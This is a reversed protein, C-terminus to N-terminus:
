DKFKMKEKLFELYGLIGHEPTHISIGQIYSDIFGAAILTFAQILDSFNSPIDEGGASFWIEVFKSIPLYDQEAPSYNLNHAYKNRMKNLSKIAPYLLAISTKKNNSIDLKKSFTLRILEWNEVEPIAWKLYRDLYYEIILHSRLVVSLNINGGEILGKFELNFRLRHKEINEVQKRMWDFYETKKFHKLDM